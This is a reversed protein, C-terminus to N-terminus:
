SAYCQIIARLSRDSVNQLLAIGPVGTILPIECRIIAYGEQKVTLIHLSSAL